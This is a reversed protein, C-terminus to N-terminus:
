LPQREEALKPHLVKELGHRSLPFQRALPLEYELTQIGLREHGGCQRHSEPRAVGRETEPVHNPARREGPCDLLSRDVVIYEWRVRSAQAQEILGRPLPPAEVGRRVARHLVRGSPPMRTVVVLAAPERTRADSNPPNEPRGEAGEAEVGGPEAVWVLGRPSRQE